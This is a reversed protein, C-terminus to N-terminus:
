LQLRYVMLTGELLREDIGLRVTKENIREFTPSCAAAEVAIPSM